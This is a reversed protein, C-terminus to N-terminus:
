AVGFMKITGAEIDGSDFKFSIQTIANTTNIYGATHMSVTWNGHDYGTGNAIFHKVHTTSSPDYLTLVGSSSEDNEYGTGTNLIRQFM